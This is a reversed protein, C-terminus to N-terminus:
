FGHTCTDTALMRIRTIMTQKWDCNLNNLNKKTLLHNHAMIFTRHIRACLQDFHQNANSPQSLIKKQDIGVPSADWRRNESIISKLLYSIRETRLNFVDKLVVDTRLDGVVHCLVYFFFLAWINQCIIAHVLWSSLPSIVYGITNWYQWEMTPLEVIFGM